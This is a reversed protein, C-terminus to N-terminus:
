LKGTQAATARRSKKALALYVVGSGDSPGEVDSGGIDLDYYCEAPPWAHSFIYM